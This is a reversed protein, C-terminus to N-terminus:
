AAQRVKVRTFRIIPIDGLNNGLDRRSLREDSFFCMTSTGTKDHGVCAANYKGAAEFYRRITVVDARSDDFRVDVEYHYAM